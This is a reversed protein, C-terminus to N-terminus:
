YKNTKLNKNDSDLLYRGDNYLLYVVRGHIDTACVPRLSASMGGNRALSVSVCGVRTLTTTAGGVRTMNVSLCGM